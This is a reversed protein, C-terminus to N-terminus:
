VDYVVGDSIRERKKSELFIIGYQFCLTLSKKLFDSFKKKKIVLQCILNGHYVLISYSYDHSSGYVM